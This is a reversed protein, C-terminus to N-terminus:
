ARAAEPKLGPLALIALLERIEQRAALHSLTLKTQVGPLPLDFLTLGLPFLERFIVRESVGPAVRFGIRQALDELASVLRRKSRADTFAVRNRMVVWDLPRM